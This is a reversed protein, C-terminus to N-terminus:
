LPTNFLIYSLFLFSIFLFLVSLTLFTLAFRLSNYKRVVALKQGHLVACKYYLIEDINMNQCSEASEEPIPDTILKKLIPEFTIKMKTGDRFELCIPSKKSMKKKGEPNEMPSKKSGKKNGEPEDVNYPEPYISRVGMAFALTSFLLSLCLCVVFPLHDAVLLGPTINLKTLLILLSIYFAALAGSSYM